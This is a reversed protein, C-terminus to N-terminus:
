IVKGSFLQNSKINLSDAPFYLRFRFKAERKETQKKTEKQRGEREERGEKKRGKTTQNTFFM